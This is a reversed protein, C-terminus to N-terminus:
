WGLSSRFRTGGYPIRRHEGRQKKRSTRVTMQKVFELGTARLADAAPSGRAAAFQAATFYALANKSRLIMVLSSGSTLDALYAAYRLRLDNAQIAGPMYIADGRWDWLRLRATQSSSPLGDNVPDMQVFDETTGNQREWLRLPVIMDVPLVPNAYTAVGDNYGTYSVYVQASPDGSVATNIALVNLLISEKSFTEVGSNILEHQLDRYAANLLEMTYPATDTLIAGSISQAADNIISRTLNLVQTATDYPTTQIVPM